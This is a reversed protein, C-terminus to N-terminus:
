GVFQKMIDTGSFHKSKADRLQKNGVMKGSNLDYVRIRNSFVFTILSEEVYIHTLRRNILSWLVDPFSITEPLFHSVWTNTNDNQKIIAFKRKRWCCILLAFL